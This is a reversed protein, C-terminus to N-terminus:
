VAHQNTADVFETALTRRGSLANSAGLGESGCHDGRHPAMAVVFVFLVLSEFTM